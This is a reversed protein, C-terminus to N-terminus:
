LVFGPLCNRYYVLLYSMLELTKSAQVHNFWGLQLINLTDRSITTIDFLSISPRVLTGKPAEKLHIEWVFAVFRRRPESVNHFQYSNANEHGHMLRVDQNPLRADQNALHVDVMYTMFFMHLILIFISVGLVTGLTM